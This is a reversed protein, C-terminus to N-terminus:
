ESRLSCQKPQLPLEVATGVRDHFRANDKREERVLGAIMEAAGELPIMESNKEWRWKMELKGQKLGRD